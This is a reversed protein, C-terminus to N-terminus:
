RLSQTYREWALPNMLLEEIVDLAGSLEDLAESQAHRARMADIERRRQSLASEASMRTAWQSVGLMALHDGREAAESLVRLRTREAGRMHQSPDAAEHAPGEARLLGLWYLALLAPLVAEGRTRVLPALLANRASGAADREYQTLALSALAQPDGRLTITTGDGGLANYADAPEVRARAMLVLLADLSRTPLPIGVPSEAARLEWEVAPLCLLDSLLELAASALSPALSDPSIYGRASLGAAGRPGTDLPVLAFRAAEQPLYGLRALLPGILDERRSGRLAMLHGSSLSLHWEDASGAARLVLTGTAKARSAAPLLVGLAHRQLSGSLRLDGGVSIPTPLGNQSAARGSSARGNSGRHTSFGAEAAGTPIEDDFADLPADLPELLEPPVLDDFTSEGLSPVELVSIDGGMDAVAARLTSLLASSLGESLSLAPASATSSLKSTHRPPPTTQRETRSPETRAETYAPANIVNHVRVAIDHASLSRPLIVDPKVSQLEAREGHASIVVVPPKHGAPHTRRLRHLAALMGPGDADLLLASTGQQLASDVNETTVRTTKLGLTNLAESLGEDNTCLAM